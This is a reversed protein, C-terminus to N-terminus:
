LSHIKYCIIPSHCSQKWTWGTANVHNLQTDKTVLSIRSTDFLEVPRVEGTHKIWKNLAVRPKEPTPEKWKSELEDASYWESMNEKDVGLFNLDIDNDNYVIKVKEGNDTIYFEDRVILSGDQAKYEKAKPVEKSEESSVEVKFMAGLIDNVFEHFTIEKKNATM